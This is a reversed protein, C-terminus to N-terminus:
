PLIWTPFNNKLFHRYEPHSAAERYESIITKKIWEYMKPSLKDYTVHTIKGQAVAEMIAEYADPVFECGTVVTPSSATFADPIDSLAVADPVNEIRYIYGSVGQYTKRTADPYYEELRLLGERTFGYSGWKKWIGDYAFGTERCYKEVANSLYVLVNERKSSFYVLPTGHNSIRPELIKIDPTQSAHFFM